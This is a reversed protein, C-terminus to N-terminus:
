HFFVHFYNYDNVHTLSSFHPLPLLRKCRVSFFFTWSLNCYFSILKQGLCSSSSFWFCHSCVHTFVSLTLVLRLELCYFSFILVISFTLFSLSLQWSKCLSLFTYPFFQSLFISSMLIKVGFRILSKIVHM